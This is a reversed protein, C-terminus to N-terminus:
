LIKEKKETLSDKLVDDKKRELYAPYILDRLVQEQKDGMKMVDDKADKARAYTVPRSIDNRFERISGLLFPRVLDILYYLEDHNNQMLTGTMGVVPCASRDRLDCLRMHSQSKGNKFEHYEDVVVLKWQVSALQDYDQARIFLSKGVILIFDRGDQIRELAKERSPGKYVGVNFHGWTKFENQWNDIVSPPVIILIPTFRPQEIADLASSENKLGFGTMLAQRKSEAEARLAKAVKGRHRGIEVEDLGTGTKQLLAAILGIMQVTKGLGM